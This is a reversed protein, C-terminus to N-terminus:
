SICQSAKVYACQHGNELHIHYLQNGDENSQTISTCNKYSKVKVKNAMGERVLLILWQIKDNQWRSVSEGPFPNQKMFVDTDILEVPQGLISFQNINRLTLAFLFNQWTKPWGTRAHNNIANNNEAWAESWRYDATLLNNSTNKIHKFIFKTVAHKCFCFQM